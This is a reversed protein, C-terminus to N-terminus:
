LGLSRQLSPSIRGQRARRRQQSRLNSARDVIVKCEAHYKRRNTRHHEFIVLGCHKCGTVDPLKRRVRKPSTARPVDGDSGVEILTM